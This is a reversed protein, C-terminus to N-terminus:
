DPNWKMKRWIEGFNVKMGFKMLIPWFICFNAHQPPQPPGPPDQIVRPVGLVSKKKSFCSQGIMICWIQVSNRIKSYFFKQLLTGMTIPVCHQARCYLYQANSFIDKKGLATWLFELGRCLHYLRARKLAEIVSTPYVLELRFLSANILMKGVVDIQKFIIKKKLCNRGRFPFVSAFLEIVSNKM